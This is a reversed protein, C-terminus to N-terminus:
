RRVSRTSGSSPCHALLALRSGEDLVSLCDWLAVDDGLPLYAEWAAQREDVLTAVVSDKLDPAQAWLYIHRM